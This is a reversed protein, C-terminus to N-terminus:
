FTHGRYTGHRAAMQFLCLQFLSVFFCLQKWLVQNSHGCEMMVSWMGDRGCAMVVVHWWMSDCGCAIVVM